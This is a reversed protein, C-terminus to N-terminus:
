VGHHYIVTYPGEYHCIFVCDEGKAELDDTLGDYTDAHAVIRKGKAAIWQGAYEKLTGTPLSNLWEATGELRDWKQNEDESLNAERISTQFADM